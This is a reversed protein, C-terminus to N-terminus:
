LDVWSAYGAADALESPDKMRAVADVVQWAGRQQLISSLLTKYEAALERARGSAAPEDVPEAEVWLAAGPGMVGTGIRARGTARLVAAPEGSPLRGIQTVEAVVGMVGSKGDLRPVLLLRLPEREASEAASSSTRAARAADVAAQAPATLDVPVVMGPLVVADDLFLVPLTLSM